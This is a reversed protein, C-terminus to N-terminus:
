LSVILCLSDNPLLHISFILYASSLHSVFTIAFYSTLHFHSLFGFGWSGTWIFRFLEWLLKPLAYVDTKNHELCLEWIWGVKPRKLSTMEQAQTAFVSRCLNWELSMRRAYRIWQTCSSKNGCLEIISSNMLTRPKGPGWKCKSKGM